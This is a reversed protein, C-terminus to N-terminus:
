AQREGTNHQIENEQNAIIHRYNLENNEPVNNQPVRHRPEVEINNQPLRHLLNNEVEQQAIHINNNNAHNALLQPQRLDEQSGHQSQDPSEM